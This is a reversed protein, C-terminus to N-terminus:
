YYRETSPYVWEPTYCMHDKVWDDIRQKIWGSTYTIKEEVLEFQQEGKDAGDKRRGGEPIPVKKKVTESDRAVGLNIFRQLVCKRTQEGQWHYQLCTPSAECAEKCAQLSDVFTDKGPALRDWNTNDWNHRVDPNTVPLFEYLDSYLLPHGLKRRENEWRWLTKMDEPKLKHMTLFPQCWLRETYPLTHAAYTNFLPFFGSLPVGANWLAWGLISDGCPDSRVLDLWKLSIPPDTFQSGAPSSRRRMLKEMAGRSLVFGPGGNAFWTDVKKKEDRRGPSPSGMYLPSQPDLTSLFRFMNDWSIYTDSEYFVYFDRDPRMQWAREVGALFKYKDLRWGNKGRAPDNDATLEGDRALAYMAEYNAYDANANGENDGDRYARPLNALIDIAHRGYILDDLDSFVLLEDPGFCASVSELQADVMKRNEGHGMKLVPQIKQTLHHPFSACLQEITKNQADHNAVPFFASTTEFPYFAPAPTPEGRSFFLVLLALSVVIAILANARGLRKNLRHRWVGTAAPSFLRPM